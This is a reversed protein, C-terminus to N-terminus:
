LIKKIKGRNDLGNVQNRRNDKRIDEPANKQEGQSFQREILSKLGDIEEKLRDVKDELDKQPQVLAYQSCRQQLEQNDMETTVPKLTVLKSPVPIKCITKGNRLVKDPTLSM